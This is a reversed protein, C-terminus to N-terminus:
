GVRGLYEKMVKEHAECYEMLSSYEQKKLVELEVARKVASRPSSYYNDDVIWKDKQPLMEGTGPNRVLGEGRRWYSVQWNYEDTKVIHTEENLVITTM